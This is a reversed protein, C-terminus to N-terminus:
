RGSVLVKFQRGLIAEPKKFGGNQSNCLQGEM